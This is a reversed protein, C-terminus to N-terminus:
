DVDIVKAHDATGLSRPAPEERKPPRHLLRHEPKPPRDNALIVALWPLLIAGAVCLGLWLPLLPVKLGVLVGGVVLCVLRTGMM